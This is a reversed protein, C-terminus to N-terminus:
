NTVYVIYYRQNSRGGDQDTWSTSTGTATINGSLDTWQADTLNAKYAVRYIKGAVSSWSIIANKGSLKLGCPVSNGAITVSAGGATGLTYAPNAVLSLTATRADVHTTSPKPIVTLTVSAAGAPITLATSLANYDTGNVATGSFSGNVTLSSTTSGTRTITFAGNDPGVRSANVDSATVTVTPLVVPATNSVMVSVSASTTQNGAADRAVATLTHTGDAVTTSNWTVSYPASTDEAGLNVGNLKFQVGAVGVNDSANASVTVASGSVTANNAPATISVTPATIDPATEVPTITISGLQTNAERGRVILTHTGAALSFVKPAFQANDFTGNGRWAVTRETLGSTLPIDWTMEPDTPEADINVFFSNASDDPTNVQAVVVYDGATSINFTYAARGGETVGTYAPQSITGNTIVFPSTITASGTGLTLGSSPEAAVSVSVAPSTVTSGTGYVARATLSYSGAIVSSWTHTYPSTTDEGLLTSGHFFQVKSITNGNATVSAALSITAPATYSAGNAPATLAVVPAPLANVTLGFSTSKTLSGDSVTVTITATGTQGGAPTVTITRSSGSGGFIIGSSPVLTPNSSSGTVMLSGASTELDGVTFSLPGTSTGATITQNAISSISPVTNVLNNLNVSVASATTQNGAADRAVATLTYNGNLLTTTNLTVSYPSSTDEAGLNAGNLKFQVGVVGVNDSANASVGVALGSITAGNAPATISVTPPTTDTVGYKYAGLDWAGSSPRTAGALDTTFVSSLNLAANIAPSGASLRADFGASTSNVFLPASSITTGLTYTYDSGSGSFNYNGSSNGFVLNRDVVVGSGHADYSDLGYRSNAYIVNNKIDVGSLNLWLMVGGRGNYAMVNNYAKLNSVTSYGAIHLGWSANRIMVNNLVLENDGCLYLAHDLNSGSRGNDRILNGIYKNDRTTRDSYVGDQGYNSVIAVNGNHHIDNNIIQNYNGWISIGGTPGGRIEFGDIINYSGDLYIAKNRNAGNQGDIVAGGRVQSRLTIPSTATGSKNIRLGWGTQHDTYVGPQVIITTGATALGYARSITRFPQSASGPNNDNGTTSVYYDAASARVLGLTLTILCLRRVISEIKMMRQSQYLRSRAPM